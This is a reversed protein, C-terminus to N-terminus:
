EKSTATSRTGVLRILSSAFISSPSTCLLGYTTSYPPSTNIMYKPTMSKKCLQVLPFFTACTMLYRKAGLGIEVTCGVGYALCNRSKKLNLNLGM